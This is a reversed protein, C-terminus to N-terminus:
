QQEESFGGRLGTLHFSLAGTEWWLLSLLDSVFCRGNTCGSTTGLRLDLALGGGELREGRAAGRRVHLDCWRSCCAQPQGERLPGWLGTCGDEQWVGLPAVQQATIGSAIAQQVSERTVQAVVMNPFRYLM